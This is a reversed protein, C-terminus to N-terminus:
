VTKNKKVGTNHKDWEHKSKKKKLFPKWTKCICESMSGSCMGSVLISVCPKTIHTNFVDHSSWCLESLIRCRFVAPASSSFFFALIEFTQLIGACVFLGCVSLKSSSSSSVWWCLHSLHLAFACRPHPRRSGSTSTYGRIIHQQKAASSSESIYKLSMQKELTKM